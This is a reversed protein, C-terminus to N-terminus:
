HAVSVPGQLVINPPLPKLAAATTQSLELARQAEKQTLLAEIQTLREVADKSGLHRAVNYHAWSTVFDCHARHVAGLTFHYSHFSYPACRPIYDLAKRYSRWPAERGDCGYLGVLRSAAWTSNGSNLAREFYTVGTQPTESLKKFYRRFALDGLMNQADTLGLDAARGLYQEAKVVDQQLGTGANFFAALMANAVPDGLEAATWMLDAAREPSATGFAGSYTQVALQRVAYADNSRAARESFERPQAIDQTMGEMRLALLVGLIASAKDEGKDAAARLHREAEAENEARDASQSKAMKALGRLLEVLPDTGAEALADLIAQPKQMRYAEFAARLAMALEQPRTAFAAPDFPVMWYNLGCPKAYFDYFGVTMGEHAAPKPATRAQKNPRLELSFEAARLEQAIAPDLTMAKAYDGAAGAFNQAGLYAHGRENYAVALKPSAEIARTFSAIAAPFDGRKALIRGRGLHAAAHDEDLAIAKDYDALALELEGRSQYASARDCYTEACTPDLAAARTYDAIARECEGRERYLDGRNRFFCTNQPDIAIARDYDAIAERQEGALARAVGRNNFAIASDPDLEIARVYDSIARDLAGAGLHANGRNVYDSWSTPDIAAAEPLAAVTEGRERLSRSIRGYLVCSERSVPHRRPAENQPRTRASNWM